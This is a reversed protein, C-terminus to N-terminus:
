KSLPLGSFEKPKVPGQAMFETFQQKAQAIAEPTWQGPNSIGCRDLCTQVGYAVNLPIKAAIAEVEQVGIGGLTAGV